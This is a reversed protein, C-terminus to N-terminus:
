PGLEETDQVNANADWTTWTGHKEGLRFKGERWRYGKPHYETWLGDRKGKVYVGEM